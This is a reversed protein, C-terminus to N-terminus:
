LSQHHNVNCSYHTPRSHMLKNTHGGSVLATADSSLVFALLTYLPYKEIRSHIWLLSTLYLGRNWMEIAFQNHQFISIKNQIACLRSKACKLIDLIESSKCADQIISAATQLEMELMYVDYSYISSNDLWMPMDILLLHPSILSPFMNSLKIILVIINKMWQLAICLLHSAEAFSSISPKGSTRFM